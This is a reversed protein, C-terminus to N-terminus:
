AANTGASSTNASDDLVADPKHIVEEITRRAFNDYVDQLQPLTGADPIDIGLRKMEQLLENREM